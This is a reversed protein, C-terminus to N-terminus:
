AQGGARRAEAAAPAPVPAENAKRIKWMLHEGSTTRPYRAPNDDAVCTPLCEVVADANPQHFFSISLRTKDARDRPPNAVRHLTSVWRDNTWYAMLDGVNVVFAREDPGVDVWEGATNRVQLGAVGPEQWLITLSGYDTHAGARWQNDAPADDQPTYFNAQLHSIHRAIKPEFFGEDLGLGLAFGRMLRCSLDEMATYYAEWTKRFATPESPWINPAYFSDRGARAYADDGPDPHGVRFTERLDQGM